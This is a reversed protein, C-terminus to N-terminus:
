LEDARPRRRFLQHLAHPPHIVGVIQERRIRGVDERCARNDGALVFGESTGESVRQVVERDGVRAVVVQGSKPEGRQLSRPVVRQGNSILPEMAHGAVRRGPLREGRPSVLGGLLGLIVDAVVDGIWMGRM